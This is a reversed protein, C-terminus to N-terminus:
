RTTRKKHCQTCNVCNNKNSYKNPCLLMKAFAIALLLTDSNGNSEFLYAHSYKNKKIANTLTKYVIKQKEIYEDLM